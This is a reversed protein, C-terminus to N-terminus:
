IQNRRLIDAYSTAAWGPVSTDVSNPTGLGQANRLAGYSTPSGGTSIPGIASGPFEAQAVTPSFAPSGPFRGSGYLQQILQPIRNAVPASVPTPASTSTNASTDGGYMPPNNTESNTPLSGDPNKPMFAHVLANIGRGVTYAQGVYPISGIALRQLPSLTSPGNFIKDWLSPENSPM